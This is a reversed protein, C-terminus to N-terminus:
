RTCVLICRSYPCLNFLKIWYMRPLCDMQNVHEIASIFSVISFVDFILITIMSNYTVMHVNTCLLALIMM